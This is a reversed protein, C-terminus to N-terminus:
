NFLCCGESKMDKLIHLRSLSILFFYCDYSSYCLSISFLKSNPTPKPYIPGLYVGQATNLELKVYHFFEELATHTFRVWYVHVSLKCPHLIETLGDFM